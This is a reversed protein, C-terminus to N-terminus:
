FLSDRVEKRSKRKADVRWRDKRDIEAERKANLPSFLHGKRIAFPSNTEVREACFIRYESKSISTNVCSKGVLWNGITWPSIMTIDTVYLVFCTSFRKTKDVHYKHAYSVDLCKRNSTIDARVCYSLKQTYCGIRDTQATSQSDNTLARLVNNSMPAEAM